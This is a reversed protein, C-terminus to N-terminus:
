KKRHKWYDPGYDYCLQTNKPIPDKTYLVIHLVGDIWAPASLLNPADSHNIYRALGGQDQADIVYPDPFYEFCYANTRDSRKRKRVIGTYEAIFEMAKFNREAFVGWGMRDDIWRVSVEPLLYSLIEKRFYVGLWVAEQSPAPQLMKKPNTFELYSRFRVNTM